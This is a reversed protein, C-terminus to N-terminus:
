DDDDDDPPNAVVPLATGQIQKLLLTLPNEAEGAVKLRDNFMGMHRMLLELAGKKDALKLKKLSGVPAGDQSLEVADLGALAAATDDDMEHLPKLTGDVNFAKRIDLFALRAVEQLVRDQTVRARVSRQAMAAQIREAVPAKRLLQRGIDAATRASYGARRAAQTANLDILYEETFRQQRATLSTRSM